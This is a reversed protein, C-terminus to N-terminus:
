FQIEDDLLEGFGQPDLVKGMEREYMELYKGLVSRIQAPNMDFLAIGGLQHKALWSSFGSLTNDIAKKQYDALQDKSM